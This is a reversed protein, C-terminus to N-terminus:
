DKLEEFEIILKVRFRPPKCEQTEADFYPCGEWSDDVGLRRCKGELTVCLPATKPFFDTISLCRREEVNLICDIDAGELPIFVGELEVRKM